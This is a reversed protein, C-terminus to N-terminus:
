AHMRSEHAWQIPDFAGGNLTIGLQRLINIAQARHGHGHTCVHVLAAARSFRYTEGGRVSMTQELTEALRQERALRTAVEALEASSERSLALLEDVSRDKALPPSGLWGRSPRDMLRDTWGRVAGIIHTFLGHLGDKEAPGIPFPRHWQEQTLGRCAELLRQTAWADHAVLIAGCDDM